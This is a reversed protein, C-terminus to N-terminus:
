LRAQISVVNASCRQKYSAVREIFPFLITCQQPDASITRKTKFVRRRWLRQYGEEKAKAPEPFLTRQYTIRYVQTQELLINVDNTLEVIM